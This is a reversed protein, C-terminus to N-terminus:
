HFKRLQMSMKMQNIGSETYKPFGEKDQLKFSLSIKNTDSNKKIKDFKIKKFYYVKENINKFKLWQQLDM